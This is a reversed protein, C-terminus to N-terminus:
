ATSLALRRFQWLNKPIHYENRHLTRGDAYKGLWWEGAPADGSSDAATVCGHSPDHSRGTQRPKSGKFGNERWSAVLPVGDTLQEVDVRFFKSADSHDTMANGAVSCDPHPVDPPLEKVDADIIRRTQCVCLDQGILALLRRDREEVSGDSPKRSTAHPRALQHGVVTRGILRM